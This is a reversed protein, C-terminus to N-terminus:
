TEVHIIEVPCGEAAATACGELDDPVDGVSPDGDVRYEAVIQSLYDDDNEEFVEPCDAYCAGCSICEDREITVKM